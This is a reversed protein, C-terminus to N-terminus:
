MAPTAMAKLSFGVNVKNHIFKDPVSGEEMFSIGWNTRDINFRAEASMMGDEMSVKAPFEISKAVGKLTLNGRITHTPDAIKYESEEAAAEEGETAEPAQYPMVEAIVFEANPYTEVEFFDGSKLHGELKAKDEPSDVLDEAVLTSMDIMINGATINGGEITFSGSTINITGNHKGTPKTGVWLVKSADTDVSYTSAAAEETKQIDEAEAVKAEDSKPAEACGVILGAFAM